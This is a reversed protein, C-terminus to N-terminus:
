IVKFIYNLFEDPSNFHCVLIYKNWVCVFFCFFLFSMLCMSFLIVFMFKFVNYMLNWIYPVFVYFPLFQCSILFCNGFIHKRCSIGKLNLSLYICLLHTSFSVMCFIAMIFDATAINIDCLTCEIVFFLVLSLSSFKM